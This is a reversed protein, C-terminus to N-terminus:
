TSKMGINESTVEEAPFRIWGLEEWRPGRGDNSQSDLAARAAVLLKAVEVRGLRAAWHLPTEGGRGSSSDLGVTGVSAGPWRQETLGPAGRSGGAAQGHGGGCPWQVSGLASADRRPFRSQGLAGVPATARRLRPPAWSCSSRSPRPTARWQQLTCRRRVKPAAADRRDPGCRRRLERPERARPGADGEGRRRGSSGPRLPGGRPRETRRLTHRDLRLADMPAALRGLPGCRSQPGHSVEGPVMEVPKETSGVVKM